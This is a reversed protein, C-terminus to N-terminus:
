YYKIVRSYYSGKSPAAMFADFMEQTVHHTYWRGNAQIQLTGTEPDWDYGSLWSSQVTGTQREQKKEEEPHTMSKIWDKGSTKKEQAEKRWSPTTEEEVVPKGFIEQPKGSLYPNSATSPLYDWLKAAQDDSWGVENIAAIQEDKTYSGYKGSETPQDVKDLALRFKMYEDYTLAGSEVAEKGNTWGAAKSNEYTQAYEELKQKDAPSANKYVSTSRIPKLAEEAEQLEAPTTFREELDTVKDVGQEVKLIGEIGDNIAKDTFGMDIMKQYEELYEENNTRSLELLHQYSESYTVNKPDTAYQVAYLDKMSKSLKEPDFGFEDVLTNCIENYKEKDGNQYARYGVEAFAKQNAAPDLDWALAYLDADYPDDFVDRGRKYMATITNYINDFPIGFMKSVASAVTKLKKKYKTFDFPEGSTLIDSAADWATKIASGMDGLASDTVSEFGYYTDGFALSSILSWVDSGFPLMGFIGSGIDKGMNQAMVELSFNGNEDTYKEEKRRFLNWLMTMAAFTVLQGIQSTIARSLKKKAEAYQAQAEVSDANNQLQAKKGKFNGIADYLVNFNQMPQTKFMMLTQVVGSKSRLYEPRQLSTYNPQTEEIVQNYIDAVARYYADSQGHIGAGKKYLGPNNNRVYFESAKWLKRTTLLDVGQIWNLGKPLNAFINNQNQIDGLEQTSFGKTRYWQLPTYKAILDLDVHGNDRFAQVLPRWGLVGAATPYSAAQKMAVSLNLTLVAGAYKSRVKAFTKELDEQNNNPTQLDSIMKEVYGKAKDGWKNTISELVSGEFNQYVGNSDFHGLTVGMLKNINRIPIALGVYKSTSEISQKLIDTIDRVIVPKKSGQREKLNGMGEITGDFKIAGYEAGLFNKDVSIPLYDGVKAIPCGLLQESVENLYDKSMGNFYDHIADAFAREQATMDAALKNLFSKTVKVKTTNSGYADSINGKMYSKMDPLTIGGGAIHGNPTDRGCMHEMWGQDKSALYLTMRMAPTLQIRKQQGDATLVDYELLQAKTGTLSKMLKKNTLWEKFLDGAKKQYDLMRRQGGALGQEGAVAQYLPDSEVYGTLRHMFRTPSLTGQVMLTDINRWLGKKTGPSNDIDRIIQMGMQLTDRADDVGILQKETRITTELVKLADTLERVDDLTMDAIHKQSLRALQKGILDHRTVFDPNNEKESEYWASLAQLNDAKGSTLRVAVLDLDGILDKILAKNAKTTKMRDLRQAIKLLKKRADSDEKRLRRNEAVEKYHEKIQQIQRNKSTRARERLANMRAKNENRLREIKKDSRRQAAQYRNEAKEQIRSIVEGTQIDAQTPESTPAELLSNFIDLAAAQTAGAMDFSYPNQTEPVYNDVFDAIYLLQDTATNIEEPFASGWQEHLMQYYETVDIGKATSINMRGFHKKRWENYDGIDAAVRPSVKITTAKIDRMIDTGDSEVVAQASEILKKAIPLLARNVNSYTQRGGRNTLLYTGWYQLDTVIEDAKITGEYVEILNKAMKRADRESIVSKHDRWAASEPTHATLEAQAKSFEYERTLKRNEKELQRVRKELDTAVSDMTRDLSADSSTERSYRIDPNEQNFRESLPIVNGDDDYTVPDASKLQTPNFFVYNDAKDGYDYINRMVVSTYGNEYAWKCIQDTSYYDDGIEPVKVAWFQASDADFEFPNDGLDGYLDYAGIKHIQNLSDRIDDPVAFWGSDDMLLTDNELVRGIKGRIDIAADGVEYGVLYGLYKKQETTFRSYNESYYEKVAAINDEFREIDNLVDEPTYGTEESRLEELSTFDSDRMVWFLNEVWAINNLLKNDREWDLGLDTHLEDIKDAIRIAEDRIMNFADSKETDTAIHYKRGWVTEADKIISSISTGGEYARGINRVGAYHNDGAYHASVTRDSSTYIFPVDHASDKFQTFGFFRTGHYLHKPRPIRGRKETAITQIQMAAEDVMRQLEKENAEPDQALEMYRQNFAESEVETSFKQHVRTTKRGKMVDKPNLDQRGYDVDKATKGANIDDAVTQAEADVNVDDNYWGGFYGGKDVFKQFSTNAADLNFNPVMPNTDAASQRTENVLKMYNPNVSGDNNLRFENFRPTLGRKQILDMYDDYNNNHESPYIMKSVKKPNKGTGKVYEDWLNQKDPNIVDNQSSTFVEWNYFDAVDKGTRVTHFPIVVDSWPQEMAWRVGETDTAVVVIGVNKKENRLAIADNIDASQLPDIEYQETEPNYKAFVSININMGTDAFIRAFDVDKTYALGKLGKLSADMVEQMNEVIFAGSYDSFSYFRLGYHDNLNKVTQKGMKLIEGNYAVYDMQKKSWSASQAYALIDKMQAIEVASGKQMVESRKLETKIDSKTLLHEGNNYANLWSKYRALMPDTAKRGHLFEVFLPSNKNISKVNPKGAAEYSKLAADRDDIYRGLFENYAKRDLSVYCYLCQPDVAIDYMKQSVLFSEMQTLPRDLKDQVMDVFQNYALTRVCITTNEVSVDYSGNKVLVKGVKDTPLINKYQIMRQVMQNTKDLADDFLTNDFILKSVQKKPDNFFKTQKEAIDPAFELSFRSDNVTGKATEIEQESHIRPVIDQDTESSTRQKVPPGNNRVEDVAEATANIENVTQYVIKAAESLFGNYADKMGPLDDMKWINMEGYIDCVIEEKVDDLSMGPLAEQYAPILTENIFRNGFTKRLQNMITSIKKAKNAALEAHMVEHRVLTYPSFTPHDVRLYITDGKIAARAEGDEALSLNNGVFAVVKKNYKKVLAQIKRNDPTDDLEVLQVTNQTTGDNIGLSKATATQGTLHYGNTSESGANETINRGTFATQGAGSEMREGQVATGPRDNRESSGPVFVNGSEEYTAGEEIDEIAANYIAEKIDSGIYAQSSKPLMVEELAVGNKAQQYIAAAGAQFQTADMDDTYNQAVADAYNLAGQDSAQSAYDYIQEIDANVQAETKSVTAYEGPTFATRSGGTQGPNANGIEAELEEDINSFATQPRYQADQNFEIGANRLSSQMRDMDAANIAAQRMAPSIFATQPIAEQGQMAANYVSGMENFYQNVPISPDYMSRFVNGINTYGSRTYNNAIENVTATDQQRQDLSGRFATQRPTQEAPLAINGRFATQTPVTQRATLGPFATQRNGERAANRQQIRTIEELTGQRLNDYMEQSILTSNQVYNKIVSQAKAPDMGNSIAETIADNVRRADKDAQLKNQLSNVADNHESQFEYTGTGQNRVFEGANRDSTTQQTPEVAQVDPHMLRNTILDDLSPQRLEGNAEAQVITQYLDRAEAESVRNWIGSGSAQLSELRSAKKFAASSPDFSKGEQIIANVVNTDTLDMSPNTLITLDALNRANVNTAHQGYAEMATGYSGLGAASIAGSAFAKADEVLQQTFVASFAQNEDSPALGNELIYANMQRRWESVDHGVMRDYVFGWANTMANGMVEEGGEAMMQKVWSVWASKGKWVSAFLNDLGIKETLFEIGGAAFGNIVADETSMGNRINELTANQAADTSMIGLTIAENVRNATKGTIGFMNTIGKGIAVGYVNDIASMGAQYLLELADATFGEGGAAERIMEGTTGRVTNVFNVRNYKPDGANITHDGTILDYLQTVTSGIATIPKLATSVMNMFFPAEKTLEAYEQNEAYSQRDNLQYEVLDDYYKMASEKGQTNYLYNFMAVEDKTMYKEAGSSYKDAISSYRQKEGTSANPRYYLYDYAEQNGNVSEYFLADKDEQTLENRSQEDTYAPIQPRQFQQVYKSNQDFDENMYMSSYTKNFERSSFERGLRDLANSFLNDGLLPSRQRTTYDPLTGNQLFNDADDETMGQNQMLYEKRSNYDELDRYGPANLISDARAQDPTYATNFSNKQNQNYYNFQAQMRKLDGMSANDLPAGVGTYYASRRIADERQPKADVLPAFIGQVRGKPQFQTVRSKALDQLQQYAAPNVKGNPLSTVMGRDEILAPTSRNNRLNEAAAVDPMLTNRTQTLRNQLRNSFEKNNGTANKKLTNMMSNYDRLYSKPNFDGSQYAAASSANFTDVLRSATAQEHARKMQKNAFPSYYLGSDTSVAGAQANSQPKPTGSVASSSVKKAEEEEKKKRAIQDYFNFNAM